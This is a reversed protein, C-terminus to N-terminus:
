PLWQALATRLDDLLIPKTLYADMGAALAENRDAPGAHASLAVIPFRPLRGLAQLARLRRTAEFGDMHPMQLDMLVLDPPADSCASIALVGDAAGRPEHGLQRLYEEAIMLNVANDEVVLVRASRPQPVAAAPPQPPAETLMTQFRYPSQPIVALGMGVARAAAELAPQNWDPRVLLVIRSAPLLARWAAPDAKNGLAQEMIVVLNPAVAADRAQQTLSTTGLVVEFSWGLRTLRQGLSQTIAHTPAVVWAHGRTAPLPPRPEPALAVPWSFAFCSGEPGSREIVVDGGMAQALRRSIALGLGSGGHERTLSDDAQVFADFVAERRADAIGPGSDQVRVVARASREGVVQVEGQLMVYGTRTFKVANGALNTIVQRVRGADGRVWAPGVWDYHLLLGKDRAAPMLPRMVEAAMEALDYAEDGLELRGAEIRSFDLVENILQMLARGSGLAVELYRQQAPQDAVRLALETLGLLGNLPTRLEHSMHALFESKARSAREAESRQSEAEALAADLKETREAVMRRLHRRHQDLEEHDLQQQHVDGVMGSIRIRGELDLTSRGRGRFWRWSGDACRLRYTSEWVGQHSGAREAEADFAARDEPHVWSLFTAIDPSPTGPPHGLLQTFNDSVFFDHLGATREFHAEAAADLARHYREASELAAVQAAKEAHLDSMMGILREPRSDATLWVRGSARAWRWSGLADLYRLDYTFPGGQKLARAYSAEFRPRDEPHIRANVADRDHLGQPLGLMRFFTPSYWITGAVLDREWYAEGAGVVIRWARQLEEPSAHAAFAVLEASTPPMPDDPM